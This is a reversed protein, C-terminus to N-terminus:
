GGLRTIIWKGSLKNILKIGLSNHMNANNMIIVNRYDPMNFCFDHVYKCILSRHKHWPPPQHVSCNIRCLSNKYYICITTVNEMIIDTCVVNCACTTTSYMLDWCSERDHEIMHRSIQQLDSCEPPAVISISPSHEVLMLQLLIHKNTSPVIDQRPISFHSTLWDLEVELCRSWECYPQMVTSWILVIETSCVHINSHKWSYVIYYTCRFIEVNLEM